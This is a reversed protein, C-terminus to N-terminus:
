SEQENVQQQAKWHNERDLVNRKQKRKIKKQTNRPETM